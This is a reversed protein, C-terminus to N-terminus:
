NSPATPRIRNIHAARYDWNCFRDPIVVVGSETTMAGKFDVPPGKRDSASAPNQEAIKLESEASSLTKTVYLKGGQCAYYAKVGSQDSSEYLRSQSMPREDLSHLMVTKHDITMEARSCKDLRDCDADGEPTKVAISHNRAETEIKKLRRATDFYIHISGDPTTVDIHGLHQDYAPVVKSHAIYDPAPLLADLGVRHRWNCVPLREDSLSSTIVTSAKGASTSDAAEGNLVRMLPALSSSTYVKDEKCGQYVNELTTRSADLFKPGVHNVVPRRTTWLESDFVPRGDLSAIEYNATIKHDYVRVAADTDIWNTVRGYNLQQIDFMQGDDYQLTVALPVEQWSVIGGPIALRGSPAANSRGAAGATNSSEHSDFAACGVLWTVASLLIAFVLCTRM